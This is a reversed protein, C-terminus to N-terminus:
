RDAQAQRLMAWVPTFDFRFGPLVDEGSMEQPRELREPERGPRYVWVDGHVPDVLWALQAGFRIWDSVRGQLYALTDNPSRVEVIFAPCLHWFGTRPPAGGAAALQQSTIWSM